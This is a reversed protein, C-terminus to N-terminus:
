IRPPTATSVAAPAFPPSNHELTQVSSETFLLRARCFRFGRQAIELVDIGRDGRAGGRSVLRSKRFFVILNIPRRSHASAMHCLRGRSHPASSSLRPRSHRLSKVWDM